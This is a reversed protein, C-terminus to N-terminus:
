KEILFQEALKEAESKMKETEESEDFVVVAMNILFIIGLANKFMLFDKESYEGFVKHIENRRNNVKCLFSYASDQLIGKKHLYCIKRKFGWRKVENWRKIDFQNRYEEPLNNVNLEFPTPKGTFAGYTKLALITVNSEVVRWNDLPYHLLQEVTPEISMLYKKYCDDCLNLKALKRLREFGSM